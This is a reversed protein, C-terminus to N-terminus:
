CVAVSSITQQARQNHVICSPNKSFMHNIVLQSRLTYLGWTEKTQNTQNRSHVALGDELDWLLRGEPYGNESVCSLIWEEMKEDKQSSPSQQCSIQPKSFLAAVELKLTSNHKEPNMFVFCEYVGEDSISINKLFLTANGDSLGTQNIFIRDRYEETHHDPMRKGAHFVFLSKDSLQTRGKKTWTATLDNQSRQAFLCPLSATQGLLVVKVAQSTTLILVVAQHMKCFKNYLLMFPGPFILIL